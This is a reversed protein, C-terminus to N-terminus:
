EFKLLPVIIIWWMFAVNSKLRCFAITYANEHSSGCKIFLYHESFSKFLLSNRMEGRRFMMSLQIQVFSMILARQNELCEFDKSQFVNEPDVTGEGRGWMDFFHFLTQRWVIDFSVVRLKFCVFHKFDSQTAFTASWRPESFIYVPIYM